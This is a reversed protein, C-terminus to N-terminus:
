KKLQQLVNIVSVGPFGVVAVLGSPFEIPRPRGTLLQARERLWE